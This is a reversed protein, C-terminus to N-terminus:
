AMLTDLGVKVIVFQPIGGQVPGHSFAAPLSSDELVDLLYHTLGANRICQLTKPNGMSESQPIYEGFVLFAYIAIRERHSAIM